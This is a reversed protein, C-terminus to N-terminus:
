EGTSPLAALAERMEAASAFREAADTRTAKQILAEFAESLDPNVTRVGALGEKFCKETIMTEIDRRPFPLGGAAAQFLMLGTQYLDSRHDVTASVDIQEPSAYEITGMFTPQMTIVTQRMAKALGFDALLVHDSASVFLNVPKLDRHIIGADHIYGLAQLLGSGIRVVRAVSLRGGPADKLIRELTPDEVFPMAYFHLGDTSDYEHISVLNPHALNSMVRYERRFRRVYEPNKTLHTPLVKVAAFAGTDENVAKFVSTMGGSGLDQVLRYRGLVRGLFEDTM